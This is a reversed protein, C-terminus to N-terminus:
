NGEEPAPIVKISVHLSGENDTLIDDNIRLYLMGPESAWVNGRRGVWQVYDSEGVRGILVGGAVGTLPYFSPAPYRKHGNADHWEGPTYLWYGTARIEATENAQLRVGTSQWGRYAFIETQAMDEQMVPLMVNTFLLYLIAIGLLGTIWLWALRAFIMRVPIKAPLVAKKPVAVM